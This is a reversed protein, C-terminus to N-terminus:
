QPRLPHPNRTLLSCLLADQIWDLKLAHRAYHVGAHSCWVCWSYYRWGQWGRQALSAERFGGAVRRAERKWALEGARQRWAALASKQSVAARHVEAREKMARAAAVVPGVQQWARLVARRRMGDIADRAAQLKAAKARRRHVHMLWTSVSAGGVVRERLERNRLGEMAAVVLGWRALALRLRWRSGAVALADGAAVLRRARDARAKWGGLAVALRRQAARRSLPAEAQVLQRRRRAICLWQRLAHVARARRFGAHAAQLHSTALADQKAAEVTAARWSRLAAGLVRRKDHSLAAALAQWKRTRAASYGQWAAFAREQVVRRRHGDARHEKLREIRADEVCQRWRQLAKLLTVFTHYCMAQTAHRQQQRRQEPAEALAALAGAMLRREYRERLLQEQIALRRRAAAAVRWEEFCEALLMFQRKCALVGAARARARGQAAALRLAALATLQLRRRRHLCATRRRASHAVFWRWQQAVVAAATRRHLRRALKSAGDDRGTQLASRDVHLEQWQRGCGLRAGTAAAAKPPPPPSTQTHVGAATQPLAQKVVADAEVQTSAAATQRGFAVGLV